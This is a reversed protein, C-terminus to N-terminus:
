LRRLLTLLVVNTRGVKEVVKGSETFGVRRYFGIARANNVETKVVVTRFGRRKALDVTKRMLRTGIGSGTESELVVIGSLEAEREGSKRLSAFGVVRGDIEAVVIQALPSALRKSLFEESAIEKISEDTAGTFGLAEPGAESWAQTFFVSLKSADNRRAPRVEIRRQRLDLSSQNKKNEM